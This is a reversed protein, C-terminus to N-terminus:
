LPLKRAPFGVVGFTVLDAELALQPFLEVDVGSDTLHQLANRVTVRISTSNGEGKQMHWRIRSLDYICLKLLKPPDLRFLQRSIIEEFSVSIKDRVQGM